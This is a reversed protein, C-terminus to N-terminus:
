YVWVNYLHIAFSLLIIGTSAWRVWLALKRKEPPLWSWGAVGLIIALIMEGLPISRMAPSDLRGEWFHPNAIGMILLSLAFLIFAANFFVAAASLRPKTQNEM